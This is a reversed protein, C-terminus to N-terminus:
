MEIWAFWYMHMCICAYSVRVAEMAHKAQLCVLLLLLLWCCGVVVLLLLLFLLLLLLLLLVTLGGHRASIPGPPDHSSASCLDHLFAEPKVCRWSMWWLWVAYVAHYQRLVGPFSFFTSPGLPGMYWVQNKQLRQISNKSPGWCEDSRLRWRQFFPMYIVVSFVCFLSCMVAHKCKRSWSRFHKCRLVGGARQMSVQDQLIPGDICLDRAPFWWALQLDSIEQLTNLTDLGTCFLCPLSWLLCLRSLHKTSLPFRHYFGVNM